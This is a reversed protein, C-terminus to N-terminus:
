TGVQQIGPARLLLPEEPEVQHGQSIQRKTPPGRHHTLTASAPLIRLNNWEPGELIHLSYRLSARMVPLPGGKRGQKVARAEVELGARHTKIIKIYPWITKEM